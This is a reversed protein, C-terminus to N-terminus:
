TALGRDLRWWRQVVSFQFGYRSETNLTIYHDERLLRLVERVTESEVDTATRRSKLRNFVEDFALPADTAALIDLLDLVTQETGPYYTDIRERYHRLDWPDNSAILCESMIDGVPREPQLRLADVVHHIYYPCNDVAEAIEGALQKPTDTEIEEGKLLKLALTQADEPLLPPVDIKRMDNTPANSYGANKLSTIVHHLGISGTFVMRLGSYMQRLSRLTNLLDEAVAEDNRRKINQLMMPLEDWLFVLAEEQHECLDEITRNLLSKWDAALQEPFKVVGGVEFGGLEKMLEAVRRTTRQRRSLFQRVDDFVVQVFALPTNIGELDRFFLLKGSRPEAQMKKLISTKGMRREATLVLSQRELTTWLREILRDRGVVENPPISGGPNARM